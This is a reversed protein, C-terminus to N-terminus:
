CPLDNPLRFRRKAKTEGGTSAANHMFFDQHEFNISGQLTIRLFPPSSTIGTSAIEIPSHSNKGSTYPGFSNERSIGVQSAKASFRNRIIIKLM